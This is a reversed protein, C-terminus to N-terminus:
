RQDKPPLGGLVPIPLDSQEAIIQQDTQIRRRLEEAAADLGMELLEGDKMIAITIEREAKARATDDAVYATLLDRSQLLEATMQEVVAQSHGTPREQPMESLVPFGEGSAIRGATDRETNFQDIMRKTEEELKDTACASLSLACAAVFGSLCQIKFM